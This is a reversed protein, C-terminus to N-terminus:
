KEMMARVFAMGEEGAMAPVTNIDFLDGWYVRSKEMALINDAEFIVIASPDSSQLWYEGVLRVDEPYNWELRRATREKPTGGVPTLFSVFLM